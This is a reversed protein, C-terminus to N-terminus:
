AGIFAGWSSCKKPRPREPAGSPYVVVERNQKSDYPSIGEKGVLLITQEKIQRVYSQKLFMGVSRVRGKGVTILLRAERAM